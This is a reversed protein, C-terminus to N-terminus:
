RVMGVESTEKDNTPVGSDTGEARHAVRVWAGQKLSRANTVQGVFWPGKSRGAPSLLVPLLGSVGEMTDQVLSGFGVPWSRTFVKPLRACGRV